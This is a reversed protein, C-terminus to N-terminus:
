KESFIKYSDPEPYDMDEMVQRFCTLWNPMVVGFASNLKSNDLVSYKPRAAKMPNNGTSEPFVTVRKGFKKEYFKSIHVAFEYWTVKGECSMHYLGSYAPDFAKSQSLILGVGEALSRAWTPAGLQDNVVQVEVLNKCLNLMTLLFNRGRSGYIWSTRFILHKVGSNIINNDGQVKSKAYISLPNVDDNEHYPAKKTGDYAFDTSFHVMLGGYKKLEESFIGPADANVKMAYEEKEEATDVATYGASNLVIKPQYERMSSVIQEPKSLDIEPCVVDGLLSMVRVLEYGIQGNKGTILIKPKSEM